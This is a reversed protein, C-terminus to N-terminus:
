KSKSLIKLAVHEHECGIDGLCGNMGIFEVAANNQDVFEQLAKLEGEEFGPYNVLEDFVIICEPELYPALSDL